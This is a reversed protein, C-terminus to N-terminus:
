QFHQTKIIVTKFFGKNLNRYLLDQVSALKAIQFHCENRITLQTAPSIPNM